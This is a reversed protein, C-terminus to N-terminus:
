RWSVSSPGRPMASASLCSGSSTCAGTHSSFAEDVEVQWYGSALDLTSFWRAGAMTDLSDDIRPLPYADRVTVANLRRYDVCFRVRGDKKKVLVVPSAWPGGSPEIVGRKLMEDVERDVVERRHPALRRPPVRIPAATGTEIAHSVVTTRGIDEDDLQLADRNRRLLEEWPAKDEAPSGELLEKIIGELRAERDPPPHDGVMGEGVMRVQHDMSSVDVPELTALGMGKYLTVAEPGPNCVLLPVGDNGDPHVLSRGVRFGRDREVGALGEVVGASSRLWNGVLQGELVTETCPELVATRRSVVRCRTAEQTGSVLREGTLDIVAGTKRLFDAGLMGPSAIDAILFETMIKLGECELETSVKGELQLPTGDATHLTEKAERIEGPRGEEAWWASSLLNVTAGTDVLLSVPRGWLRGQVEMGNGKRERRGKCEPPGIDRGTTGAQGVPPVGGLKGITTSRGRGGYGGGKGEMPPLEAQLADRIACEYCKRVERPKQPSPRSPPGVKTTQIKDMKQSLNSMWAEMKDRMWSEMSKSSSRVRQNRSREAKLYAEAQVGIQVAASLDTPNGQYIWHKLDADELSDLFRDKAMNDVTGADANPYAGVAFGRRVLQLPARGDKPDTNPAAGQISRDSQPTPVTRHPGGQPSSVRRTRSAQGSVVIM